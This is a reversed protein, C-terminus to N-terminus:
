TEWYYVFEVISKQEVKCLMEFITELFDQKKIMNLCVSKSDSLNRYLFLIIFLYINSNSFIFTM